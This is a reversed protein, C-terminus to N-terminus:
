VKTEHGKSDVKNEDFVSRFSSLKEEWEYKILKVQSDYDICACIRKTNVHRGECTIGYQKENVNYFCKKNVVDIAPQDFGM